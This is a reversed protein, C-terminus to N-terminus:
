LSYTNHTLLSHIDPSRCAQSRSLPQIYQSHPPPTHPSISVSPIRSLPQIYQSHPIYPHNTIHEQAMIETQVAHQLCELPYGPSVGPPPNTLFTYQFLHPFAAVVRPPGSIASFATTYCRFEFWKMSLTPRRPWSFLQPHWFLSGSPRRSIEVKGVWSKSRRDQKTRTIQEGDKSTSLKTFKEILVLPEYNMSKQCIWFQRDM